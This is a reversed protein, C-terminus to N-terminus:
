ELWVSQAYQMIAKLEQNTLGQNSSVKTCISRADLNYFALRHILFSAFADVSASHSYLISLLGDTIYRPFSSHSNYVVNQWMWDELTLGLMWSEGMLMKALLGNTRKSVQEIFDIPVSYFKAIINSQTDKLFHIKITRPRAVRCCCPFDMTDKKYEIYPVDNRGFYERDIKLESFMYLCAKYEQIFKQCERITPVTAVDDEFQMEVRKLAVVEEQTFQFKPLGSTTNVKQIQRIDLIKQAVMCEQKGSIRPVHNQCIQRQQGVDNEEVDFQQNQVNYKKSAGQLLPATGSFKIIDM